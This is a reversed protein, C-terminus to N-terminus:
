KLFLEKFDGNFKNLFNHMDLVENPNIKDPSRSKINFNAHKENRKTMISVHVVLQNKCNHCDFHFLGENAYTSIVQLDEDQFKKHCVNCPVAKKLQKIIEKLEPYIM